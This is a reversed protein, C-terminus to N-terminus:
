DIVPYMSRALALGSASTIAPPSYESASPNKMRGVRIRACVGSWSVMHSSIKPGTIDIWTYGSAAQDSVSSM